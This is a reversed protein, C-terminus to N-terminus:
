IVELEGQLAGAARIAQLVAILDRPSVKIANLAKVLDSIRVGEPIMMLKADEEEIQIEQNNTVVTQGESLPAPQSVEVTNTIKITLNGHSVAVTSIRVDSGMVITGTREDVVVKAFTEPQIELGLIKDVFEYYNDRYQEPVVVKVTTPNVIAAVEEDFYKNILNKAKVINSISLNNFSLTLYENSLNFPIEKEILAGNPIRGVTPHNKVAGAGGASVNMGGVSIPGQAVAYIQGNPASLPTLLLTGGELSKADGISSVVVDLKSGAAAFPSLKATVMVAAVNKVKVKAKDVTIGMRDLMNVLSQITFETGSKDGTGNLGVVLGYGILQNDRVGEITAMDRIKIGAISVSEFLFLIILIIFKKMVDRGLIAM